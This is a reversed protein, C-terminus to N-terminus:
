FVMSAMANNINQQNNKIYVSTTSLSAHGMAKSIVAVPVGKNSAITAFAARLNHNNMDEWFPIGANKAITKITLGLNNRHIQGGQFSAFLYECDDKRNKLYAEIFQETQENIYITREKAGKGFVAIERTGNAIAERYDALTLACLESVRLGTSAYTAIIAKDRATRACNLMATIDEAAMYPKEKPNVKPKELEVSPDNAIIGAKALFGFYSRFSAIYQRVTNASKNSISAQFNLLDIYTIDEESKNIYKLFKEIHDTYIQITNDSKKNAIMYNIYNSNM